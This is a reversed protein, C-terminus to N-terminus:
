VPIMVLQVPLSGSVAGPGMWTVAVPVNRMVDSSSPLTVSNRGQRCRKRLVGDGATAWVPHDPSRHGPPTVLVGEGIAHVRVSLAGPM